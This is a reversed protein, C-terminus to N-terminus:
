LMSIAQPNSPHDDVTSFQPMSTPAQSLLALSTRRGCPRASGLAIYAITKGKMPPPYFNHSQAVGFPRYYYDGYEEGTLKQVIIGHGREQAHFHAPSPKPSM